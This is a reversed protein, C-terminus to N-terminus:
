GGPLEFRTPPADQVCSTDIGDLSGTQVLRVVMASVCPGGQGHGGNPVVVHLHNPWSQAVHKAGEVPTVPDRGGSLILAPKDSRVPRFFEPPMRASPWRDCARKYGAILFDGMFTGATAQRIDDWSLPDVDEACLVSLHYGAPVGGAAGVWAQRSLYYDALPQWNGAHAEYLRAPVSGAQGYLLGRLAYSLPGIGFPVRVGEEVVETPSDTATTLVDDLVQDLDPYAAACAPQSRCDDLTRDLAEQLYRAHYLYVRQDVPAVGNLIVTRVMDPHRRTFIQAERTGYSGGHLDLQAYGLWSALDALDDMAALTTYQSLDARRSLVDRCADIHDLPFVTEFRSAVGGPFPNDCALAESSGTGRADVLLLDRGARIDARYRAMGPANPTAPAGPGGGFQIFADRNGQDSLAKLVVFALDLTRGTRAERNEWVRFRGCLVDGPLEQLCPETVGDGVAAGDPLSPFAPGQQATAHPVVGGLGLALAAMWGVARRGRVVGEAFGWM